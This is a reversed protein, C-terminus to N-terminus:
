GKRELINQGLSNICRVEYGQQILKNAGDCLGTISGHFYCEWPGAETDHGNRGAPIRYELEFIM